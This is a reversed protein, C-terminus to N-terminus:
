PLLLVRRLARSGDRLLQKLPKLAGSHVIAVQNESNFSLNSLAGAAHEKAVASGDRLLQVLPDLAGVRVISVKNEANFSLSRLARAANEKAGASGDRLLPVLPELAGARVIAVKNEANLALNSLACAAQEKAGESGDRLLQVLSGVDKGGVAATVAVGCLAGGLVVGAAGGLAVGASWVLATLIAANPPTSLVGLALAFPPARMNTLATRAQQLGLQSRVVLLGVALLVVASLASGVLATGLATLQVAAGAIAAFRHLVTHGALPTDWGGGGRARLVLALALCGMTARVPWAADDGAIRRSAFSLLVWTLTLLADREIVQTYGVRGRRASAEAPERVSLLWAADANREARVRGGIAQEENWIVRARKQKKSESKVEEDIQKLIAGEVADEGAAATADPDDDVPEERCLELRANVVRRGEDDTVIWYSLVSWVNNLVGVLPKLLSILTNLAAILALGQILQLDINFSIHQWVDAMSEFAAGIFAFVQSLEFDLLLRVLQEVHILADWDIQLSLLPDLSYRYCAAALGGQEERSAGADAALMVITGYILMPAAASCLWFAAFSWGLVTFGCDGGWAYGELRRMLAGAYTIGSIDSLWGFAGPVAELLGSLLPQLRAGMGGKELEGKELGGKELGGKKLRGKEVSGATALRRGALWRGGAKIAWGTLLVLAGLPAFLSGPLAASTLTLSGAAWVVGLYAPVLHPIAIPVSHNVRGALKAFRQEASSGDKGSGDWPAEADELRQYDTKRHEDLKGRNIWLKIGVSLAFAYIFMLQYGSLLAPQAIWTRLALAEFLPRGERNTTMCPYLGARPPHTPSTSM